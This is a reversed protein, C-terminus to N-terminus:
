GGLHLRDTAVASLTRTGDERGLSENGWNRDVRSGMRPDLEFDGSFPCCQPKVPQTLIFGYVSLLADTRPTPTAGIRSRHCSGLAPRPM